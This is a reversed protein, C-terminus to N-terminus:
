RETGQEACSEMKEVLVRRREIASMHVYRMTMQPNKHGLQEMMITLPVGKAAMRTGCTHRTAHFCCEKNEEQGLSARLQCMMDSVKGHYWGPFLLGRGWAAIRRALVERAKTTLVVQRWSGNKALADPILALGQQLDVRKGELSLIEGLRFGAEIGLTFIDAMDHQQIAQFYALAERELEKSFTFQRANSLRQRKWTPRATIWGEREAFYLVRHVSQIYARITAPSKDDRELDERLKAYTKRSVDKCLTDMGILKIASRARRWSGDGDRQNRWGEEVDNFAIDLADRLTRGSMPVPPFTERIGGRMEDVVVYKGEERLATAIDAELRKAEVETINALRRRVRLPKRTPNDAAGVFVDVLARTPTLMVTAM